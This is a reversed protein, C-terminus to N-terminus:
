RRSGGRQNRFRRILEVPGAWRWDGEPGLYEVRTVGSETEEETRAWDLAGAHDAHEGEAVVDGMQDKFRYRTM